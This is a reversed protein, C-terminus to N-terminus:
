PAASLLCSAEPGAARRGDVSLSWLTVRARRGATDEEPCWSCVECRGAERHWSSWWALMGPWATCQLPYGWFLWPRWQSVGLVRFLGLALGCM